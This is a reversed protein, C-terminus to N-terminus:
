MVQLKIQKINTKFQGIGDMKGRNKCYITVYPGQSCEKLRKLWNVLVLAMYTYWVHKDHCHALTSYCM